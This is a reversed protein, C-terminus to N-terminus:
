TADIADGNGEGIDFQNMIRSGTTFVRHSQYFTSNKKYQQVVICHFSILHGQSKLPMLQTEM